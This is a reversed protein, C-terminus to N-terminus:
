AIAAETAAAAATGGPWATKPKGSSVHRGDITFRFTSGQGVQSQVWIAGNYTEIISKVSALGVGKGAVNQAVTNRGRRFIVFVKSMEDAEIGIGTDSVYFEAEQPRVNCGIRIQRTLGDGMYKIANDILNQFIQRLRSKEGHILPLETDILIQIRRSRLDDEFIGTLDQVLARIDVIEMKQRRTKIRSLELLESILDTEMKVNKQIRELRHVVDEDFKERHKMLLMTTMGDINRLPANLDHSVARLFDEKETIESSLRKNAVELETTREVVKAELGENAEALKVNAEALSQNADNLEDQQQKVKLVMDNFARALEGIIDPRDVAVSTDLDGASIRRSATVLERIPLFIRHVLLYSFPLSVIAVAIGLLVAWYNIKRIQAEESAQSIGVSVYGLLKTGAEPAGPTLTTPVDHGSMPSSVNLVPATVVAYRGLVPATEQYVQMLAMTRHKLFPLSDWSFDPDRSSMAIPAGTHDLFAVFLINRSKLLDQGITRLETADNAALSPKSALALASSIQRAQEGMIDELRSNSQSVFLWCTSGLAVSLILMFASILKGQLGLRM